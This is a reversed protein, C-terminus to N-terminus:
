SNYIITYDNIINNLEICSMINIKLRSINVVGFHNNNGQIVVIFFIFIKFKFVTSDFLSLVFCCKIKFIIAACHFPDLKLGKLILYVRQM